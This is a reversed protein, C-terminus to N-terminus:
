DNNKIGSIYGCINSGAVCGLIVWFQWDSTNINVTALVGGTIACLLIYIFNMM